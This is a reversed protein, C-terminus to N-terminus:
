QNPIICHDRTITEFYHLGKHALGSHSCAKKIVVLTTENPTVGSHVMDDFVQLAEEVYNHQALASIMTNWLIIDQKDKILYFVLRGIHLRGCKSYMDILSSLVIANLRVNKRIFFGHIQKGHKLSDISACACLCSSFTFQNPKIRLDMMKTFLELARHGLGNRVYGSILSTWSVPNKKPMKHFLDHALEMNGRKAYDSVLTTWALVDKVKMEDFFKRADSLDDCKAYADVLTSSIVVNSLFGIVFVQGHVQRTFNLEKMKVCVTLVGSFTFENYGISFSRLNKYFGLSEALDGSQAYGMIMTNWSVFDKEPMQDFMKRAPKNMGLKVYGSLMNNYSYLNRVSIKDFVKRANCGDGCKLYMNILHNSLYTTPTKRGTLKLHLHVWKGLILSRTNACQQLVVALTKEQLRFGRRTLLDLSSVAESLYGQSLLGLFSEILCNKPLRKRNLGLPSFKSPM